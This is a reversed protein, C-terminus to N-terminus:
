QAGVAEDCETALRLREVVADAIWARRSNELQEFIDIAAVESLIRSPPTVRAREGSVYGLADTAATAGSGTDSPDAQRDPASPGTAGNTRAADM